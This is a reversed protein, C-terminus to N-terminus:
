DDMLGFTFSDTNELGIAGDSFSIDTSFGSMTAVSKCTGTGIIFTSGVTSFGGFNFTCVNLLNVIKKYRQSDIM